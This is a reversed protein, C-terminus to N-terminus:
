DKGIIRNSYRDLDFCFLRSSHWIPLKAFENNLIISPHSCVATDDTHDANVLSFPLENNLQIPCCQIM